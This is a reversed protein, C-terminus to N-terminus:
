LSGGAHAVVPTEVGIEIGGAPSEPGKPVRALDCLREAELILIAKGDGLISAGALGPIVALYPPLPKVVIEERRLLADVAFGALEDGCGLILVPTEGESSSRDPLGLLAAMSSLGIVRGRLTFASKGLLSRVKGVPVKLMEVVASTPVAFIQGGASVILSEIVAMTLPLELRIASGEGVKSSVGIRGGVSRINTRVVDMGVGRGSIDTVKEATSFGPAFILDLIAAEDMGEADEAGVVGKEVAKALIKAPDMGKGDDRVEIVISNGEHMASLCITGRRSKGSAARDDPEEIGHDAANRVLHVLPDVISEAIAKDIETEEGKLVLDVEKGTRRSIDRVMRPFKQFVQRIPVMRMDMVAQRMSESIRQVGQVSVSLEKATAAPLSRDSELSRQMHSLANRVVILEGVLNMFHDLLAADIRMTKPANDAVPAQSSAVSASGGRISVAEAGSAAPQAGASRERMECLLFELRELLAALAAADCPGPGSAAGIWSELDRACALIAEYGMYQASSKMSHASRFALDLTASDLRSDAASRLRALCLSLAEEYQRASELFILASEDRGSGARIPRAPGTLEAEGSLRESMAELRALLAEPPQCRQGSAVVELLTKIGASAELFLDLADSGLQFGEIQRMIGLVNEFAHALGSLAELALYGSSGKVTHVLRFVADLEERSAVGRGLALLLNDLQEMQERADALFEELAGEALDGYGGQQSSKPATIGLSTSVSLSADLESCLNSSDSELNADDPRDGEQDPDVARIHRRLCDCGRLLLDIRAGDPALDGKRFRDLMNEMRHSVGSIGKLELMGAVGKITHVARFIRNIFDADRAREELRLLDADMGELHESAETVFERLIEMDVDGSGPSSM